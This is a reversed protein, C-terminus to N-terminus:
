FDEIDEQLWNIIDQINTNNVDNGFSLYEGKYFKNFRGKIKNKDSGWRTMGISDRVEKALPKWTSDRTNLIEVRKEALRKQKELRERQARLRELEENNQAQGEQNGQRAEFAQGGDRDIEREGQQQELVAIEDNIDQIQQNVERINQVLPQGVPKTVTRASHTNSHSSAVSGGQSAKETSLVGAKKVVVLKDSKTDDRKLRWQKIKQALFKAPGNLDLGFCSPKGNECNMLSAKGFLASWQILIPEDAVFDLLPIKENGGFSTGDALFSTSHQQGSLWVAQLLARSQKSANHVWRLTMDQDSVRVAFVTEKQHNEVGIEVGATSLDRVMIKAAKGSNQLQQLLEGVRGLGAFTNLDIESFDHEFNQWRDEDYQLMSPMFDLLWSLISNQSIANSPKEDLGASLNEQGLLATAVGAITPDSFATVAHDSFQSLLQDRFGESDSLDCGSAVSFVFCM